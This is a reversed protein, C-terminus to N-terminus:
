NARVARRPGLTKPLAVTFCTGLEPTSTFTVAGDLYQESFLKISYTGIGRGAGKTTFSRVFLQRAVEPPIVGTNRCTFLVRDGEAKAALEVRAGPPSAELANKVLNGLVRRLITADTSLTLDPAADVDVHRGPAAPHHRYLARVYDHLLSEAAREVDKALM